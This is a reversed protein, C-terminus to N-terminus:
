VFHPFQPAKDINRKFVDMRQFRTKMKLDADISNKLQIMLPYAFDTFGSFCIACDTRDFAFIKPNADWSGFARLRSDTCFILEEVRGTRRIWATCITM